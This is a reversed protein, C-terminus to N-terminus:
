GQYGLAQSFRVLTSPQVDAQEAISSVTGFAIEDPHELAFSAIQTLRRPLGGAREAILGKLGAFDRPPGDASTM